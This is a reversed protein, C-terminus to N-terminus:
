FDLSQVEQSAGPQLRIRSIHTTGTKGTDDQEQDYLATIRWYLDPTSATTAARVRHPFSQFDSYTIRIRDGAEPLDDRHVTKVPIAVLSGDSDLYIIDIHYCILGERDEHEWEKILGDVPQVEGDTNMIM